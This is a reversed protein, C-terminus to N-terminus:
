NVIVEKVIKLIYEALKDNGLSDKALNYGKEAISSSLTPNNLYYEVQKELHKFDDELFVCNEGDKLDIAMEISPRSIFLLTGCLLLEYHKPCDWRRGALSVSIKSRKSLKYFEEKSFKGNKTTIVKYRKGLKDLAPLIKIRQFNMHINCLYSVDIDRESFPKFGAIDTFAAISEMDYSIWYPRIKKALDIQQQKNLKSEFLRFCLFRNFPVETKFYVKCNLLLDFDAPWIFPDDNDDVVIFPPLDIGNRMWDLVLTGGMKYKNSELSYKLRRSIHSLFGYKGGEYDVRSTTTIIFDYHGRKLNEVITPYDPYSIDAADFRLQYTGTHGYSEKLINPYHDFDIRAKKLGLVFNDFGIHFDRKPTGIVLIKM